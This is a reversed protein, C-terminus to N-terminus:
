QDNVAIAWTACPLIPKITKPWQQLSNDHCPDPWSVAATKNGPKAILQYCFWTVFCGCNRSRVWMRNQLWNEAVWKMIPFGYNCLIFYYFALCWSLLGWHGGPRCAKNGRKCTGCPNVASILVRMLSSKMSNTFEATILTQCGFKIGISNFVMYITKSLAVDTICILNQPQVNM